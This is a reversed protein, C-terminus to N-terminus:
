GGAQEFEDGLSRGVQRGVHASGHREGGIVFRGVRLGRLCEIDDKGIDIHRLLIFTGDALVGAHRREVDVRRNAHVLDSDLSGDELGDRFRRPEALQPGIGDIGQRALIAAVVQAVVGRHDVELLPLLVFDFDFQDEFAAAAFVLVNLIGYGAREIVQAAGVAIQFAHAFAQQVRDPLRLSLSARRAREADTDAAVARM